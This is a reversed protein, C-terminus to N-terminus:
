NFQNSASTMPIAGDPLKLKEQGDILQQEVEVSPFQLYFSVSPSGLFLLALDNELTHPDYAEHV